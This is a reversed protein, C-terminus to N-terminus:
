NCARKDILRQRSQRWDQQSGYIMLNTGGFCVVSDTSAAQGVGIISLKRYVQNFLEEAQIKGIAKQLKGRFEIRNVQM